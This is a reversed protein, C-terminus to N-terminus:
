FCRTSYNLFRTDKASKLFISVALIWCYNLTGLRGTLDDSRTEGGVGLFDEMDLSLAFVTVNVNVSTSSTALYVLVVSDLNLITWVEVQISADHPRNDVVLGERHESLGWDLLHNIVEPRSTVVVVYAFDYHEASKFVRHPSYAHVSGPAPQAISARTSHLLENQM